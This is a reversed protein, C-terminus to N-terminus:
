RAGRETVAKEVLKVAYGLETLASALHSGLENDDNDDLPPELVALAVNALWDVQDRAGRIENAIVELSTLRKPPRVNSV